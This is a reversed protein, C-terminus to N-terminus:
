KKYKETWQLKPEELTSQYLYGKVKDHLSGDIEKNVPYIKSNLVHQLINLTAQYSGELGRPTAFRIADDETHGYFSGTGGFRAINVSPIEYISFPMCDSSYIDLKCAFYLGIERTIGDIYGVLQQTGIVNCMHNGLDDGTVDVNIVLGAREKIEEEHEKVYAHSGLLGLEEGSFFIFRIDRDPQNKAFHEICNMLVVCGGGNDTIGHSVAVTDYHGVVYTLTKEHGKGQIDVILNNATRKETKQNHSFSIEQDVYSLLKTGVKYSVTVAPYSGEEFFKQRFSWAPKKHHPSGIAIFGAINQEKLLSAVRRPFGYVMVICGELIGRHLKIEDVNEFFVLKGKVAKMESMGYPLADFSKNGALISASGTDFSFLDFPQEQYSVHWQDLYNKFVNRARTEGESGALREFDIEKLLKYKNM